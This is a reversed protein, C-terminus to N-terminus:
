NLWPANGINSTFEFTYPSSKSAEIHRCNKLSVSCRISGTTEFYESDYQDLCVGELNM